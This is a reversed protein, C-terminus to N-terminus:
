VSRGWSPYDNFLCKIESGSDVKIGTWEPANNWQDVRM